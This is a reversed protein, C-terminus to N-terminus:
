AVMAPSCIIGAKDFAEDTALAGHLLADLGLGGPAVDGVGLGSSDGQLVADLEGGSAGSPYVFGLSIAFMFGAATEVSGALSEADVVVLREARRQAHGGKAQKEVNGRTAPEFRTPAVEDGGEELPNELVALDCEHLLGGAM